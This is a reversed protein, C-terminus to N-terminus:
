YNSVQVSVLFVPNSDSVICESTLTIGKKLRDALCQAGVWGANFCRIFVTEERAQDQSMDSIICTHPISDILLLRTM